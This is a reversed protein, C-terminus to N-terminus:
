SKGLNSYHFDCPLHPILWCTDTFQVAPSLSKEETQFRDRAAFTTEVLPRQTSSKFRSILGMMHSIDSGHPQLQFSLGQAPSQSRNKTKEWFKIAVRGPVFLPEEFQATVNIPATIVGVGKHKEIEALCVSLMWLSPATHSRYGFLRAPLSLLWYPSYDSFSWVCQLGTTRPVRLEIQKVNEPVPEDPQRENKSICRGAKRLKNKSLLTLVSEWVSSRTRSTASLGIDVEVGADIQRYELVRVQLTFPGKKLEDVPQLTKLSQRVRVLGAPSLRFNEDTLVMLLLRRCLIEPFCLPIDRYETDPYDWGYGAASCFRRLVSTELRCNLVTYVVQHKKTTATYLVGTRRTVAKTVYKIYLYAFGPVNEDSLVNTKLLKWSRYIHVYVLYVSCLSLSAVIYGRETGM